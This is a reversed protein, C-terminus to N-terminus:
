PTDVGVISVVALSDRLRHLPGNNDVMDASLHHGSVDIFETNSGGM